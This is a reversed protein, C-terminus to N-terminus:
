GGAVSLATMTVIWTRMILAGGRAPYARLRATIEWRSAVTDALRGLRNLIGVSAV